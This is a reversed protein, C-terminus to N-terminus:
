RARLDDDPFGPVEIEIPVDQSGQREYERGPLESGELKDLLYIYEAEMGQIVESAAEKNGYKIAAECVILRHFEEPMHPVDGDAQLLDPRRWFEATLAYTADAPSDLILTNDRKKTIAAPKTNSRTSSGPSHIKRFVTWDMYQLQAATSLTLNLWFSDRDWKKPTEPGSHTPVASSGITLSESYEVSLFHWDEWMVNINNNAQRIWNTANWLQGVQGVVTSPVTAGQNAGGIGLETVLEQVLELYTSM